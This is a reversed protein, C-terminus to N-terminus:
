KNIDNNVDLSPLCYSLSVKLLLSLQRGNLSITKNVSIIVSSVIQLSILLHQNLFNNNLIINHVHVHVLM